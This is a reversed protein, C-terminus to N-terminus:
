PMRRMTISARGLLGSISKWQPPDTFKFEMNPGTPNRPHSRFFTLNGDKLTKRYFYILDDYNDSTIPDTDFSLLDTSISTRRRSMPPGVEPAFEISNAEPKEGYGSVNANLTVSGPWTATM